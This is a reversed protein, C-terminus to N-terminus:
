QTQEGQAYELYKKDSETSLAQFGFTRRLAWEREETVPEYREGEITRGSNRVVLNSLDLMKEGRTSFSPLKQKIWGITYSIKPYIGPVLFPNFGLNHNADKSGQMYPTIRPSLVDLEQCSRKHPGSYGEQSFGGM